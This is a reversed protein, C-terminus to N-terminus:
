SRSKLGLKKLITMMLCWKTFSSQMLNVAIFATLWLWHQSYNLALFLSLLIMTGAILRLAENITM